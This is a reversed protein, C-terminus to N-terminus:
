LFLQPNAARIHAERAAWGRLKISLWGAALGLAAGFLVDGPYHKKALVRGVAVSTAIGLTLQPPLEECLMAAAFCEATHQSPLSRHNEGNPRLRHFVHQLGRAAAAALTIRVIPEIAYRPSRRILAPAVAAGWLALRGVDTADSLRNGGREM